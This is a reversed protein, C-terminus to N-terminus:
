HNRIHRQADVAEIPGQPAGPEGCVRGHAHKNVLHKQEAGGEAPQEDEEGRQPIAFLVQGEETVHGLKVLAEHAVDVVHVVSADEARIHRGQQQGNGHGHKGRVPRVEVVLRRDLVHQIRREGGKKVTDRNAVEQEGHPRDEDARPEQVLGELLVTALVVRLSHTLNSAGASTAAAGIDGVETDQILQEVADYLVHILAVRPHTEEAEQRTEKADHGRQEVAVFHHLLVM